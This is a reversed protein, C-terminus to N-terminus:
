YVGKGRHVLKSFVKSMWTFLKFGKSIVIALSMRIVELHAVLSITEEYGLEEIQFGRASLCLKKIVVM